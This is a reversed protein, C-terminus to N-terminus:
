FDEEDDNIRDKSSGMEHIRQMLGTADKKEVLNFYQFILILILIVTLFYGGASAIFSTIGFILEQTFSLDISENEQVGHWVGIMTMISNPLVFVMNIIAVLIWAIIFLGITSWWNGRLLNITRNITSLFEPREVNFTILTLYFLVITFFILFFLGIFLIFNILLNNMSVMGVIIFSSAAALVILLIFYGFTSTIYVILNKKVSLWLNDFKVSVNGIHIYEKVYETVVAFIIIYALISSLLLALASIGFENAFLEEPNEFSLNLLSLSYKQYYSGIIAAIAIFPGAIYFIGKFLPKFEQRLFEFTANFKQGFDRTKRFEIKKQEAV